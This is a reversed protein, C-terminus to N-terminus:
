MPEDIVRGAGRQLFVKVADPVYRYFITECTQFHSQKTIPFKVFQHDVFFVAGDRVVVVFAGRCFPCERYVIPTPTPSSGTVEIRPADPPRRLVAAGAAFTLLLFMALPWGSARRM